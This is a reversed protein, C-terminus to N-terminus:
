NRRDSARNAMLLAHDNRGVGVRQLLLQHALVQRPQALPQRPVELRNKELPPGVVARQPPPAPEERFRALIGVLELELELDQDPQVRGLAPVARLETQVAALFHQPRLDSRVREVTHSNVAGFLVAVDMASAGLGLGRVEDDDVVSEQERIGLHPTPQQGIEIVQHDVLRVVQFFRRCAPQPLLDVARAQQCQQLAKGRRRSTQQALQLPLRM